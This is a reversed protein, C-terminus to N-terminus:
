PHNIANRFEAVSDQGPSIVHRKALTYRFSQLISVDQMTRWRDREITFTYDDSLSDYEFILTRGGAPGRPCGACPSLGQKRCRV